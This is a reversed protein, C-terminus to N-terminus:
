RQMQQGAQPPYGQQAYGQQPYGQPANGQAPYGQPAPPYGQMVVCCYSVRKHHAAAASLAANTPLVEFLM